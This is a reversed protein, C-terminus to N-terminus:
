RKLKEKKVAKWHPLRQSVYMQLCHIRLPELLNQIKDSQLKSYLKVYLIIETWHQVGMYTATTRCINTGCQSSTSMWHMVTKYATYTPFQSNFLRYLLWMWAQGALSHLMCQDYTPNYISYSRQWSSSTSPAQHHQWSLCAPTSLLVIRKSSCVRRGSSALSPHFLANFHCTM